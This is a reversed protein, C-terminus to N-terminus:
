EVFGIFPINIHQRVTEGKLLDGSYRESRVDRFNINKKGVVAEM